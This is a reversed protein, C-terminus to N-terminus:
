VEKGGFKNCQRCLLKWGPHFFVWGRIDAQRRAQSLAEQEDEHAALLDGCRDCRFEYQENNFIKM